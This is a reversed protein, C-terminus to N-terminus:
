KHKSNIVTLTSDARKAITDVANVTNNVKDISPILVKLLENNQRELKDQYEKKTRSGDIFLFIVAVILLGIITILIGRRLQKGISWVSLVIEDSM